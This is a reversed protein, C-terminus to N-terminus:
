SPVVAATRPEGTDPGDSSPGEAGPEEADPERPPGALQERLYNWVVAILAAAPVALLSGVIGALSGGLTVALLVVAAHLGLGRSQIMPQFVNGELQQVVVIIALVLLADTLGNSVLAILVAVLGAFLAGVIPVFASVFTLVALPLVLPVDLFWLGLGIFVADLLGVFAQSRVFAGLTDWGREMVVPVDTALRGPLQRTLWPLFRPGDKLFFFMLFLALVATVLGNFVTSVGTVVTTVMSGVSDQIRAVAADFGKSIQDDGINLPPGAAWERLKQIGEVVGDALEGSQSAVPVAILAVIGAVVVLFLVTVVASALAPAWGHRRLFRALPWTMTTLFLAVILPWVVSWMRGLIWLAVAAMLLVLLSEASVRAATRLASATKTSSLPAPM